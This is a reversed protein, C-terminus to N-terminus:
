SIQCISNFQTQYNSLYVNYNQGSVNLLVPAGFLDDPTGINGNNFISTAWHTKTNPAKIAFWIFAPNFETLGTWDINITGTPDQASSNGALVDSAILPDSDPAIGFYINQLPVVGGIFALIDTVSPCGNITTTTTTTGTTTTTTTGQPATTTTTTGATTTTTTTALTTTTTTTGIVVAACKDKIGLLQLLAATWKATNRGCKHGFMILSVYHEVNELHDYRLRHLDSGIEADLVSQVLNEYSCWADCPFACFVDIESKGTYNITVSYNDPLDFRGVSTGIISNTGTILNLEIPFHIIHESAVGASQPYYFIYDDNWSASAYGKYKMGGAYLRLVGDDCDQQEDICVEGERSNVDKPACLDFTGEITQSNGGGEDLAIRFQYVGWEFINNFVPLDFQVTNNMPPAFVNSSGNSLVNGSPSVIILSAGVVSAAGGTKWVSPSLDVLLKGIPLNFHAAYGLVQIKTSNLITKVPM